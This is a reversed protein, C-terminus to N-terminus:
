RTEGINSEFNIIKEKSKDSLGHLRERLTHEIKLITERSSLEFLSVESREFEIRKKKYKKIQWFYINLIIFVSLIPLGIYFYQRIKPTIIKIILSNSTDQIEHLYYYKIFAPKLSVLAQRKARLTYNFTVKEGPELSDIFNVLKGSLLSFDLQSYSIMDNVRINDITITGTNEVTIKVTIINGVEIQEKNVNKIISFNIIGIIKPSSSYIQLTRSESSEIFNIPPYYYGRWGIKKLTINFSIQENYAIDIFHFTINELRKLDGFQDSLSINLDPINFGNPGINKINVTLNFIDGIAPADDIDKYSIEITRVMPFFNEYDVPASIYIENSQSEIRSANGGEINLPNNYFISVESISISNPVYFTFYITKEESPALKSLYYTLNNNQLTFNNLNEIIGPILLSITVNEAITSGINKFILTYTNLEGPNTSYNSLHSTAIISAADYTSLPISNSRREFQVNGTSSRYIVRSGLDDNINIDRTSFEIDLDNISINFQESDTCMIKIIATYNQNDLPYFLWDLSENFSVISYTWTNNQISDLYPNMDLFEESRFDFIEFTISEINESVNFDIIFSVSELTNNIFDIKTENKFLFNIEVVEELYNEISSIIWSNNDDSLAMEPITGDIPTGSVIEPTKPSTDISFNNRFFPTFSDLNSISYNDIKYSIKEGPDLKWNDDNWVSEENTFFEKVTEETFITFYGPNTDAIIDIIYDADENYPWLNTINFIDPYFTDYIGVGYSDFYFIRPDEDYNFFDELSEYQNPYEINIIDWMDNKLNEWFFPSAIQLFNDLELPVATPVGWATVNGINEASIYYAFNRFAGYSANEGILEKKLLLNPELNSINYTITFDGIPDIIGTPIYSFGQFGIQQLMNVIDTPDERNVPKVFSQKIGGDDVWFLEFSYNELNEQDFEIGALYLLLGIQELLYDYFDYFLPTADIIESCLININIESMLAGTLAIYIKESPTLPSGQYGLAEWLNFKYQNKGIKQIGKSLGEYQISISTYHSDNRLTFASFLDVFQELEDESITANVIDGYNEVAVELQDILNEMELGELFSLDLSDINFNVQDTSVDFDGEFFDLSNLLMFTSSIHYNEFYEQSTLRNIDLAKWYGDMPFNDTLEKFLCNWNPCSGIFPFFNPESANLMILDIKFKRRIIELAREARLSADESNVDKDYYLFGAFSNFGTIYHSPIKSETLISPFIAPNIGNSASIIINCKYFAPDNSDFQSLINTDNTFLSQKIISKNGAVFADIKEAYLDSGAIDSSKLKDESLQSKNEKETINNSNNNDIVSALPTLFVLIFLIFIIMLGKIKIEKVGKCQKEIFKM